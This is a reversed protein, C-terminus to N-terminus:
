FTLQVDRLLDYIEIAVLDVNDFHYHKKLRHDLIDWDQNEQDYTVQLLELGYLDFRRKQFRGDKAKEMAFLRKLIGQLQSKEESM